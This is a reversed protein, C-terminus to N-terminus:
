GTYFYRIIHFFIPASFTLSDMRDMFGGHGPISHGWDKTKLSRKVGSLSLGGLFGAIVLVISIVISACLSFPTLGRLLVGLLIACLGGGLLGEVTKHPSIDKAIKRKGFLKGCMYQFIDSFQVIILLYAILDVSHITGRNKYHMNDLMYLAPIYSINYVAIFQGWQILAVRQLFDKTQGLLATLAPVLGFAYVPILITFLGYYKDWVFYYQAPIVIYFSFVLIWYDKWSVPVLTIFERFVFISVFMFFITAGTYNFFLFLSVILVMAIWSITRRLLENSTAKSLKKTKDLYFWVGLFGFLGILLTYFVIQLETM